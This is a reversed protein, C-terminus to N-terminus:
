KEPRQPYSFEGAAGKVGYEVAARAQMWASRGLVTGGAMITSGQGVVTTTFVYARPQVLRTGVISTAGASSHYTM